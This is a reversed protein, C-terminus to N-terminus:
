YPKIVGQMCNRGQLMGTALGSVMGLSVLKYVDEQSFAQVAQFSFCRYPTERM